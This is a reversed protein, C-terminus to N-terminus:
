NQYWSLQAVFFIGKQISGLEFSVNVQSSVAPSKLNQFPVYRAAQSYFNKGKSMGGRFFKGEM